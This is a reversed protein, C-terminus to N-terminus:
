AAVTALVTAPLCYTRVVGAGVGAVGIVTFADIVTVPVYLAWYWTVNAWAPIVSAAGAAVITVTFPLGLTNAVGSNLAKKSSPADTSRFLTTYPVLATAPLY